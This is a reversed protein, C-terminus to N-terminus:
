RAVPPLFRRWAAPRGAPDGSRCAALLTEWTLATTGGVGPLLVLGPGSGHMDYALM